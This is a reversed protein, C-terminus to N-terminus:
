QSRRRPQVRRLEEGGDENSDDDELEEDADDAQEDDVRDEVYPGCVGDDKKKAVM